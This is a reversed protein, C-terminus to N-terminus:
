AKLWACPDGYQAAYAIERNREQRVELEAPSIRRAAHAAEIAKVRARGRARTKARTNGTRDRYQTIARKRAVPKKRELGGGCMSCRPRSAHYWDNTDVQDINGCDRCEGAFAKIAGGGRRRRKKSM